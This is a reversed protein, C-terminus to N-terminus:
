ARVEQRMFAVYGVGFACATLAIIGVFQPWIILLSQDLSVLGGIAGSRQAPTLLDIPTVTRLRPNLILSTADEYAQNPALTRLNVQMQLNALTDPSTTGSDPSVPKLFNAVLVVVLTLFLSLVLWVALAALASTAARRLLVSCLLALALWFGIYAITLILWVM